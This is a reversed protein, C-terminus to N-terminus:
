FGQQKIKEEARNQGGGRGRRVQTHESGATDATDGDRGDQLAVSVVPVLLLLVTSVELVLLDGPFPLLSFAGTNFYLFYLRTNHHSFPLLLTLM